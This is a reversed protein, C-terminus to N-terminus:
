RLVVKGHAVPGHANSLNYAIVGTCGSVHIRERDSRITRVALSRGIGDQLCLTMPLLAPDEVRVELMGDGGVVVQAAHAGGLPSVIGNELEVSLDDVYLYCCTGNTEMGCFCDIGSLVRVVLTDPDGSLLYDLGISFSSWEPQEGFARAGFAVTDRQFLATNWRTLLVTVQGSDNSSQDEQLADTYRKYFGNIAVPHGAFPTGEHGDLASSGNAAIGPGTGHTQPATM